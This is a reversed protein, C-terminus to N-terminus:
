KFDKVAQTTGVYVCNNYIQAETSKGYINYAWNSIYTKCNKANDNTKFYFAYLSESKDDNGVIVVAVPMISLDSFVLSTLSSKDISVDYGAKQMKTKANAYNTPVCGTFFLVFLTVFISIIIKKM